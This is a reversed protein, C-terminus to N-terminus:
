QQKKRQGSSPRAVSRLLIAVALASGIFYLVGTLVFVSFLGFTDGLYGSLVAALSGVGFIMFYKLGYAKGQKDPHVYKSILINKMPQASFAFLSQMVAVFLLFVGSTCAMIIASLGAVFSSFIYIYEVGIREGMAGGLYQGGLGASLVLTAATAGLLVPDTRIVGGLSESLYVPLFTVSAKYAMGMIAFSIYMMLLVLTDSKRKNVGVAVHRSGENVSLGYTSIIRIAMMGAGISLIGFVLYPAHWGFSTALAGVLFPAAAIGLSGSMGHIGFARGRGSVGRSILTSGTPHYLSAVLGLLTVLIFFSRYNRALVVTISSAGSAILFVLLIRGAGMRDILHGAPLSGLGFAYSFITVILGIRFYNTEFRVLLLPIIPPIIGELLHVLMHSFFTLQLIRKEQTQM